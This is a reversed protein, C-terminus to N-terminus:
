DVVVDSILQFWDSSYVNSIEKDKKCTCINYGPESCNGCRRMITRDGGQGCGNTCMEEELQIDM